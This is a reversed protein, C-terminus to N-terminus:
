AHLICRDGLLGALNNSSTRANSCNWCCRGSIYAVAGGAVNCFGVLLGFVLQLATYPVPLSPLRTIPWLGAATQTALGVQM